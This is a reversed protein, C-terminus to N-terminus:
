SARPIRLTVRAGKGPRSWIDMKGNFDRLMKKVIALGTCHLADEVVPETACNQNNLFIQLLEAGTLKGLEDRSVLDQDFCLRAILKLDFGVGDDEVSVWVEGGQRLASLSIRSNKKKQSLQRQDVSEVGHEVSNRLLPILLDAFKEMDLEEQMVGAGELRFHVRKNFHIAFDRVVRQLHHTFGFVAEQNFSRTLQDLEGVFPELEPPLTMLTMQKVISVVRALKQGDVTVEAPFLPVIPRTAPHAGLSTTLYTEADQVQKKKRQQQKLVDQVQEETVEGMGVLVEGIRRPRHTRSSRQLSLADDVTRPDVLGAEILLEGLPQRILGQVALLHEEMDTITLTETLPFRAFAERMADICRLFIREPYETQFFDGQIFRNMASELAMSLREFDRCEYISFNQKLRHLIRCLEAVREHDIAIFDWLVFEQEVTILLQECEQFFADRMEVSVGAFPTPNEPDTCAELLAETIAAQLATASAALRQDSKERAILELGQDVFTCAEIFLSIHLPSLQLQNLRASELMAGMAESPALLYELQLISGNEKIAQFLECGRGIVFLLLDDRGSEVLLTRLKPLIDEVMARSQLIFRELVPTNEESIM